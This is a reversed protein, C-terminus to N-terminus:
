ENGPEQAVGKAAVDDRNSVAEMLLARLLAIAEQRDVSTMELPRNLAAFLDTQARFLPKM